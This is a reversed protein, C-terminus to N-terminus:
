VVSTVDVTFDTNYSLTGSGGSATTSGFTHYVTVPAGTYSFKAEVKSGDAQPGNFTCPQVEPSSFALVKCSVDFEPAGSIYGAPATIRFNVGYIIHAVLTQVETASWTAYTERVELPAAVASAALAALSAFFSTRM